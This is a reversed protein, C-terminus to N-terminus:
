KRHVETNVLVRVWGLSVSLSVFPPTTNSISHDSNVYFGYIITLITHGDGYMHLSTFYKIDWLISMVDAHYVALARKRRHPKQTKRKTGIAHEYSTPIVLADHQELKALFLFLVKSLILGQRQVM